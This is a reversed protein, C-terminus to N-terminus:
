GRSPMNLEIQIDPGCCSGAGLCDIGAVATPQASSQQPPVLSAM